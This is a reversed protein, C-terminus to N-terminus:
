ENIKALIITLQNEQPYKDLSTIRYKNGEYVVVDTDEIERRYRLRFSLESAHFLENADVLYNEKNKLRQARTTLLFQETSHKYGSESQVEIVKYFDLRETLDGSFIM